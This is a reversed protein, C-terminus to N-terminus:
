YGISINLTILYQMTKLISFRVKSYCDNVPSVQQKALQKQLQEIRRHAHAILMNLDSETM